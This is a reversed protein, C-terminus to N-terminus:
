RIREIEKGCLGLKPHAQPFLSKFVNHFFSFCKRSIGVANQEIHFLLKRIQEVNLNDDAFANLKSQNLTKNNPSSNFM